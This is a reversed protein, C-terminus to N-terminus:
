LRLSLGVAAIVDAADDDLGFDSSLDLQVDDDVTWILGGGAYAQGAVDQIGPLVAVEGYCSWGGAISKSLLAGLAGALADAGSEVPTYTAGLLGTIGLGDDLARSHLLYLSGGLEDTTFGDEGTPLRLSAQLALPADSSTDLAYKVGIEIDSFGDDSTTSAGDDIRVDNWTPLSARLEVRESLGYRAAVPLSWTRADVGGERFQTFTPLGAELQLRGEPVLVPSFLFGPRDTSIPAADSSQAGAASAIVCLTSAVLLLHSRLRRATDM